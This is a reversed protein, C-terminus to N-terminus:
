YSCNRETFFFLLLLRRLQAVGSGLFERKCTVGHAICSIWSLPIPRAARIDRVSIRILYSSSSPLVATRKRAQTRCACPLGALHRRLPPRTRAGARPARRRRPGAAHADPGPCGDEGRGDAGRCRRPRRGRLLGIAGGDGRAPQPQFRRRKRRGACSPSPLVPSTAASDISTPNSDLREYVLGTRTPQRKKKQRKKKRRARAFM